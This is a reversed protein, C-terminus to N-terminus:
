DRRMADLDGEWAIKGRLKRLQKQSHVQVVLRLGAEIASRKTQFGGSKLARNMLSDDIVVNTRM